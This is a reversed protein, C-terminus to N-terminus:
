KLKYNCVDGEIVNGESDTGLKYRIPKGNEKVYKTLNEMAEVFSKAWGISFNSQFYYDNSYWNGDDESIFYIIDGICVIAGCAWISIATEDDYRIVQPKAGLFLNYENSEQNFKANLYEIISNLKVDTSDM